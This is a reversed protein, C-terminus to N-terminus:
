KQKRVIRGETKVWPGTHPFTTIIHMVIIIKLKSMQSNKRVLRIQYNEVQTQTVALRRLNGPSKMTYQGIEVIGYSAYDVSM